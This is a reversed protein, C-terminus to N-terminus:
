AYGRAPLNPLFIELNPLIKRYPNCRVPIPGMEQCGLIALITKDDAGECFFLARALM